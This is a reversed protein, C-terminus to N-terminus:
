RRNNKENKEDNRESKNEDKIIDDSKNKNRMRKMVKIKM